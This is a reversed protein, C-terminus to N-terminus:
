KPRAVSVFPRKRRRQDPTRSPNNCSSRPGLWKAHESHALRRCAQVFGKGVRIAEDAAQEAARKKKETATMGHDFQAKQLRDRTQQAATRAGLEDRQFRKRDDRLSRKLSSAQSTSIQGTEGARDIEAEGRDPDTVYKADLYTSGAIGAARASLEQPQRHRKATAPRGKQRALSELDETTIHEKELLDRYADAEKQRVFMSKVPRYANALLIYQRVDEPDDFRHVEVDIERWGLETAAAFRRAGSIIQNRRDVHIPEQLGFEKLSDALDSDPDGYIERNFPHIELKDLRIKTPM